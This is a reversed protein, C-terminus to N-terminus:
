FADTGTPCSTTSYSFTPANCKKCACRVGKSNVGAWVKLKSDTGSLSYAQPASTSDVSYSYTYLNSYSPSASTAYTNSAVMTRELSNGTNMIAEKVQALHTSRVHDQYSPYAIAALVGIIAVTIMLEILTFGKSAM